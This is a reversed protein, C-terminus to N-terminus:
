RVIQSTHLLALAGHFPQPDNADGPGSSLIPDVIDQLALKYIMVRLEPPLQM